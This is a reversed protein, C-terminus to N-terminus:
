RCKPRPRGIATAPAAIAVPPMVAIMDPNRAPQPASRNPGFTVKTPAISHLARAYASEKPYGLRPVREDDGRQDPHPGAREARTLLTQHRDENARLLAM